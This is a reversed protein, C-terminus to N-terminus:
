EVRRSEGTLTVTGQVSVKGTREQLDQSRRPSVRESAATTPTKELGATFTFTKLATEERKM